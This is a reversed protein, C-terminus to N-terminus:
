ASLGAPKSGHRQNQTANHLRGVYLMRVEAACPAKAGRDRCGAVGGLEAEESM